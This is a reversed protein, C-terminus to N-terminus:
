HMNNHEAAVAMDAGAYEAAQVQQQLWRLLPLKRPVDDSSVVRQYLGSLAEKRQAPPMVQLLKGLLQLVDPLQQISIFLPSSLLVGELGASRPQGAVPPGAQACATSSGSQSSCGQLCAAAVLNCAWLTLAPECRCVQLLHPWCKQLAQVSTGQVSIDSGSGGSSRTHLLRNLAAPVTRMVDQARSHDVAAALVDAYAAAAAAAVDQEPHCLSCVLLTLSKPPLPWGTRVLCCLATAALPLLPVLVAAPLGQTPQVGRVLPTDLFAAAARPSQTLQAVLGTVLGVYGPVEVRYPGLYLLAILSHAVVSAAAEAAAAAVASANGNQQFNSSGGRQQVDPHTPSTGAEWERNLPVGRQLRMLVLSVAIFCRQLTPSVDGDAAARSSAQMVLGQVGDALAHVVEARQLLPLPEAAAVLAAAVAPAGMALRHLGAAAAAAAAPSPGASHNPISQQQMARYAEKGVSSSPSIVPCLGMM